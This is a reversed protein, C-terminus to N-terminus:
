RLLLVSGIGDVSALRTRSRVPGRRRATKLPLTAFYRCRERPTRSWIYLMSNHYRLAPAYVGRSVDGPRLTDFDSPRSLVYHRIQTWDVLNTSHFIPVGPFYSFSSNVLYYDNGVRCVSPDPYFGALIPNLYQKAPSRVDHLHPDIANYEFSEFRVWSNPPGLDDAKAGSNASRILAMMGALLAIIWVRQRQMSSGPKYGAKRRDFQMTSAEAFSLVSPSAIRCRANSRGALPDSRCALALVSGCVALGLTAPEPVGGGTNIISVQEATSSNLLQVQYGDHSGPNAPITESTLGNPLVFTGTLGGARIASSRIRVARCQTELGTFSRTQAPLAPPAPAM